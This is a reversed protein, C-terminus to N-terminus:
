NTQSVPQLREPDFSHLSADEGPPWLTSVSGPQYFTATLSRRSQHCEAVVPSVAHWSKDSRVLVASSAIIPPIEAAVDSADSSRLILLCGGDKSNWTTNFYLVHTVVKDPLDPHPGLLSRPGYHFINVELPASSLDCGTLLSMAKRYDPSLFEQALALWSPSLGDPDAIEKAGMPILARAEYAYDKEGGYGTVSKFRDCPFTGTLTSCAEPAFLKDVRAWAYPEDEMRHMRIQALDMVQRTRAPALRKLNRMFFRAPATVRWSPSSLMRAIQDDRQTIEKNNLDAMQALQQKLDGIEALQQKNLDDRQTIEKNNLDTMQDLQKNFDAIEALQQEKLNAIQDNREVVSARAVTLSQESRELFDPLSQWFRNSAPLVDAPGKRVAEAVCDWHDSLRDLAEVAEPSPEAKGLRSLFWLPDTEGNAQLSYLTKFNSLGAYKGVTLDAISFSPVGSALATISLHYSLGIAASAHSIIEALLLPHFWDSLGVINPLIGNLIADDDGLVPGIPLVLFHYDRFLDRNLDLFRLYPEIGPVPQVVIYPSDLGLEEQLQTFERTPSQNHILRSIGFATDPMVAIQAGGALSALSARSTEDRVSIYSSQTLTLNLLPEAWKPIENCHMGPANWILPIRQQLAILAPSLWYGTPHHIAPTPPGYDLAVFKDFRIIYGGGILAADLSGAMRPLETVSTVNYPWEPPQKSNYSFAQVNVSGLRKSLEAQAILPFLLDGYNEVDFTGFIGINFIHNNM